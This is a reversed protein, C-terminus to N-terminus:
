SSCRSPSSLISLARNLWHARRKDQLFGFLNVCWLVPLLLIVFLAFAHVVVSAHQRVERRFYRLGGVLVFNRLLDFFWNSFNRVLELISGEDQPARVAWQFIHSFGCPRSRAPDSRTPGWRAPACACLGKSTSCSCRATASVAPGHPM